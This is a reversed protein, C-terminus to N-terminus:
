AHSVKDLVVHDFAIRMKLGFLFLHLEFEIKEPKLMDMTYKCKLNGDLIKALLLVLLLNDELFLITYSYCLLYYNYNIKFNQFIRILILHSSFIM